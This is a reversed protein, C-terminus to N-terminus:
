VSQAVAVPRCIKTGVKTSLPTDRPAVGVTKWVPAAAERELLEEHPQTSGMGAWQGNSWLPLRTTFWLSIFDRQKSLAICCALM